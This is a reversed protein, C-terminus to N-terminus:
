KRRRKNRRAERAAKAKKAKEEAEEAAIMEPTCRGIRNWTVYTVPQGPALTGGTMCHIIYDEVFIIGKVGGYGRFDVCKSRKLTKNKDKCPFAEIDHGPMEIMNFGPTASQGMVATSLIAAGAAMLLKRM